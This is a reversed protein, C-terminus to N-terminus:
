RKEHAIKIAEEIEKEDEALYNIMHYCEQLAERADGLNDIYKLGVFEGDKVIHDYSGAM